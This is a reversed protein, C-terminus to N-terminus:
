RWPRRIMLSVGVYLLLGVNWALGAVAVRRVRRRFVAM